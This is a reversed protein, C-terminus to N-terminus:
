ANESCGESVFMEKTDVVGARDSDESRRVDIDEIRATLFDRLGRAEKLDLNVALRSDFGVGRMMLVLEIHKGDRAAFVCTGEAPRDSMWVDDKGYPSM